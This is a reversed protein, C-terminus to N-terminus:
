PHAAAFEPSYRRLEAHLEAIPLQGPAGERAAFGYTILSGFLPFFVRSAVGHPGMAIVIVGRARRARLFDLLRESDGPETATGAVKLVGAGTADAAEFFADLASASPTGAFDHHSVIALKGQSAAVRLAPVCIAGHLEVDIGDVLPLAAEYAALRAADSLDIAGGEAATRVTGILPRDLGQAARCIQAIYAPDHRTFRDIRLEVIDAWRVAASENHVDTDSLPVAIRPVPGLALRGLTLM